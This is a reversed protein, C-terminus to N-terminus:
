EYKNGKKFELFQEITNDGYGYTHHFKAHCNCCLCIGNNLNIRLFHNSNYSELHHSILNGSKNNGCVQCTFNDRVKVAYAWILYDPTIRGFERDKDTLKPNWNPSNEKCYKGKRAKSMKRKHKESFQRGEQAESMKIKTKESHHKGFNPNNKGKKACSRCRKSVSSIKKGCDQCYKKM